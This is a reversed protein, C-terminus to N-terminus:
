ASKKSLTRFQTWTMKLFSAIEDLGIQKIVAGIKFAAQPMGYVISSAEDQGYTLAGNQRLKLLGKSGDMGMGTLIMGITNKPILEAVSFFLPDVSPKHRNVPEANADVKVFYESGRKVLSMQTAGPAILVQNPLVKMGDQAEHVEFSCCDNMRMAFAKSFVPPIHQVILTPPIEPPLNTLITRLAETGGTSSGIVLLPLDEPNWQSPISSKGRHAIQYGIPANPNQTATKVKVQASAAQKVTELIRPALEKLQDFSPKQIYDVAGTELAELVLPSESLSISSIMVTPIRYKPLYEKLFAVGDMEPMHIDLTIVDPTQSELFKRADSPKEATGIVEMSPDQSLITTLLNRITKSDDVILVKTVEKKSKTQPSVKLKGAKPFFYIWLNTTEQVSEVSYFGLKKCAIEINKIKAIPGLIKISFQNVEIKEKVFLREIERCLNEPNQLLSLIRAFSPGPTKPRIVVFIEGATLDFGLHDTDPSLDAKSIWADKRTKFTTGINSM